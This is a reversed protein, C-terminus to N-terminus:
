PKHVSGAPNRSFPSVSIAPAARSVKSSALARTLTPSSYVIMLRGCMPSAKAPVYERLFDLARMEVAAEEDTAAKVRDILGSRGHTATNWADMGSLTAADQRVVWVPAEAVTALDADTVVLAVEIIRDTEPKLGSMEMDIWILRNPDAPM